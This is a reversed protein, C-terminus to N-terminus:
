NQIFNLLLVMSSITSLFLTYLPANLKISKYNGPEVYVVDNPFLYFAESNLINKDTLNLRFTKSGQETQRMVLVKRISSFDTEGSAM